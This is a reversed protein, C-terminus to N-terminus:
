SQWQRRYTSPACGKIKKFQRNFNALNTFGVDEAIRHITDRSTRLYTCATEIRLENLFQVYTKNTKHKFRKSFQSVSLNSLRAVDRLEISERLHKMSYDIVRDISDRIYETTELHFTQPNICSYDSSSLQHLISFYQALLELGNLSPCREISELLAKGVEQEVKIGRHADQFIKKAASFEPIDFFADGFSTRTFFLSVAHVGPSREGYYEHSNKLLHPVNSGLVFIDGATFQSFSNGMMLIGEGQIIATIQYEPHYHLLDYFRAGKDVQVRLSSDANKPIKFSIAKM